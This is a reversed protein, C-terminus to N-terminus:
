KRYWEKFNQFINHSNAVIEGNLANSVLYFRKNRYLGIFPIDKLYIEEMNKYISNLEKENNLNIIELQKLVENMNPNVYNYLNNTGFFSTMDPSFSTRITFVALDYNKDLINKEFTGNEVLLVKTDIGFDTLQKAIIESAKVENTREKNAMINLEVVHEDKVWKGEKQKFGAEEMLEKAYNLNKSINLIGDIWFGNDLPYNSELVGSLENLILSKDLIYLVAKRLNPDNIKVCNFGLNTFERGKYTLKYYGFKGLFKEINEKNTELIDINGLKFEGYLESGETYRGVLIKKVHPKDKEKFGYYKENLNFHLINNEIKSLFYMGIGHPVGYAKSDMFIRDEVKKMIPFNLNYIFFPDKKNLIISFEKDNLVKIEAINSVNDKYIGGNAKIKDVTFFVDESSLKDQLNNWNVDKLTVRYELDQMKEIKEALEMSVRYDASLDILSDYFLNVLEYVYRNKTLIPNLTDLNLIGLRLDEKKVIEEKKEIDNINEKKDLRKNIVIFLFIVIFIIVSAFIWRIVKNM